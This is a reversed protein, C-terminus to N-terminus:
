NLKLNLFTYIMARMDARQKNTSAANHGGELTEYYLVSHGMDMMKAAMKRAHGPYVRDDQASIIFLVEPYKKDKYVNHYPSYKKLYEWEEPIDPNGYEGMWMAGGPMKSYREMDLLPAGIFAAKLLDPRQTIAVGVLLGGNSYGFAGLYDPSTISRNILDECVAYFDDFANQRKEKIAAQHWAPGFEGGGRINASVYVGGLELWGIGLASSYTPKQAVNFGGYARILTPNQGNLEMDDKHVIFYPIKTGDKSVAEYQNIVLTRTDFVNKLSQIERVGKDDGHYLTTPTIFNNYQFFYDHLHYGSALLIISGNGPVDVEDKVWEGEELKYKVLKNQVNEMINIVVFDKTICISSYSSIKSPEYIVKININEGTCEEINFSVVSGAPYTFDNINWDSQLVLILQNKHFGGIQADPPYDIKQIEDGSLFFLESEFFTKFKMVFAYQRNDSNFCYPFIGVIDPDAEYIIEAQDISTGRKWIKAIRPYGSVALTGEGFDTTVLITNQDFWSASGYSEEVFFGNEVFDKTEVNFERIESEDKGGDSLTILCTKNNPVLWEASRFVWKRNEKNSLEDLDLVVEWDTKNELFDVIPMRRWIGREHIEDQWLNYIYDGGITPYIIREEDNFVDLIKERLTEFLPQSAIEQETQYNQEKVWEVSKDGQIEELWLYPDEPEETQSQLVQFSSLWSFSALLIVNIRNM